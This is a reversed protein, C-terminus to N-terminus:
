AAQAQAAQQIGYALLGAAQATTLADSGSAMTRIAYDTWGSRFDGWYGATASSIPSLGSGSSKATGAGMVGRVVGADFYTLLAFFQNAAFDTGENFTLVVETGGTERWGATIRNPGTAYQIIPSRQTAGGSIGNIDAITGSNLALQSFNIRGVLLCWAPASGVNPINLKGEASLGGVVMKVPDYTPQISATVQTAHSNKGSIDSLQSVKNSGDM